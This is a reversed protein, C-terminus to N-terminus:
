LNDKIRVCKLQHFDKNPQIGIVFVPEADFGWEDIYLPVYDGPRIPNSFDPVIKVDIYTRKRCLYSAYIRAVQAAVGPDNVHKSEVKFVARGGRARVAAACYKNNSPKLHVTSDYGGQRFNHDYQYFIETYVDKYGENYEVPEELLNLGEMIPKDYDLRNYDLLGFRLKGQYFWSFLAFSKSLSDMMEVLTTPKDIYAYGRFNYKETQNKVRSLNDEDLINQNYPYVGYYKAYHHIIDMPHQILTEPSGTIKGSQDVYGGFSGWLKTSGVGNRIPYRKDLKGLRQDWQYGRLRVAKYENEEFDEIDFLEHYPHNLNGKYKMEPVSTVNLPGPDNIVYHGDVVNPFPSEIFDHKLNADYDNIDVPESGDQDQKFMEIRIDTASAIDCPHSAYIYVDDGSTNKSQSFNQKSVVHLLPARKVFGYVIPFYKGLSDSNRPVPDLIARYRRDLFFQEADSEFSAFQSAQDDVNDAGPKYTLYNLYGIEPVGNELDQVDPRASVTDINEPSLEEIWKSIPPNPETYFYCRELLRNGSLEVVESGTCVAFKGTANNNLRQNVKTFNTKQVTNSEAEENSSVVQQFENYDKIMDIRVGKWRDKFQQYPVSTPDALDVYLDEPIADMAFDIYSVTFEYDALFIEDDPSPIPRLEFSAQEPVDGYIHAPDIDIPRNHISLELVDDHIVGDNRETDWVYNFHDTIEYRYFRYYKKETRKSQITEGFTIFGVGLNPDNLDFPVLGNAAVFVKDFSEQPAIVEFREHQNEISYKNAFETSSGISSDYTTISSWNGIPDDYNGDPIGSLILQDAFDSPVSVLSGLHPDYAEGVSAYAYAFVELNQWDDVDGIVAIRYSSGAPNPFNITEQESLIKVVGPGAYGSSDFFLSLEGSNISSGSVDINSPDEDVYLRAKETVFEANYGATVLVISLERLITQAITDGPLADGSSYTYSYTGPYTAPSDLKLTYSHSTDTEGIKLMFGQQVTNKYYINSNDLESIDVNNIRAGSNVVAVASFARGGAVGGVPDPWLGGQWASAASRTQFFFQSGLERSRKETKLVTWPVDRNLTFSMNTNIRQPSLVQQTQFSNHTFLNMREKEVIERETRLTFSTMGEQHSYDTLYGEIGFESLGSDDVFFLSAELEEADSKEFINKLEKDGDWIDFNASPLSAVKNLDMETDFPSIDRIYPKYVVSITNGDGDDIDRVYFDNAYRYTTGRFTIDLIQKVSM